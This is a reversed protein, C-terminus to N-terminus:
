LRGFYSLAIDFSPESSDGQQSSNYNKKHIETLAM